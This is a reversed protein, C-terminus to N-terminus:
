LSLPIYVTVSTGACPISSLEVSGKHYEAIHKVISLGLGTGGREKSRSKDVRYFREFIRAQESKPIGIGNDCVTIAACGNDTNVTVRVWGGDNNYKVANDILNIFLESLYTENGNVTIDALDHIIAIEREAAKSSMLSVADEAISKLNVPQYIFEDREEIESLRIIDNILFLLRQSEREIVRGYKKVNESGNIMGSGFMEGYGKIVTLPTKLEHSVNATFDRRINEAKVIDTMNILLIITGNRDSMAVRQIVARYKEEGISILQKVKGDKKSKRVAELFPENDTLTFISHTDFEDRNINLLSVASDNALVVRDADDLIIISESMHEQLLRITSKENMMERKLRTNANQLKKIKTERNEKEKMFRVKFSRFRFSMVIIVAILFLVIILFIEM